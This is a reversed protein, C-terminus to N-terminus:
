EKCEVFMRNPGRAFMLTNGVPVIAGNPSSGSDLPIYGKPCVNAAEEYCKEMVASGCKIFYAKKGNPGQIERSTACGVLFAAVLCTTVFGRMGM